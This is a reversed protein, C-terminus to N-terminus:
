PIYEVTLAQYIKRTLFKVYWAYYTWSNKAINIKQM